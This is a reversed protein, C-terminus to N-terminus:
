RKADDPEYRAMIRFDEPDNASVLSALSALLFQASNIFCLQGLSFAIYKEMINPICSVRGEVKSIAQMLLHSDYGHLNHFVM